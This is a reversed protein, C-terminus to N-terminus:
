GDVSVPAAAVYDPDAAPADSSVGAGPQAQPSWNELESMVEGLNLIPHRIATFHPM